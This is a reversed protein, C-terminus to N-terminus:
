DVTRVEGKDENVSSLKVHRLYM